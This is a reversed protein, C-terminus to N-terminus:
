VAWVGMIGEVGGDGRGLVERLWANLWAGPVTYTTLVKSGDPRRRLTRVRFTRGAIGDHLLRAEDEPVDRRTWEVVGGDIFALRGTRTEKPDALPGSAGEPSAPDKVRDLLRLNRGWPLQAVVQQM